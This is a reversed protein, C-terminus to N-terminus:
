HLPARTKILFGSDAVLSLSFAEFSFRPQSKHFTTNFGLGIKLAVVSSIVEASRSLEFYMGVYM